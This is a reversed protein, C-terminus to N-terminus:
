AVQADSRRSFIERANGYGIGRRLMPHLWFNRYVFWCGLHRVIQYVMKAVTCTRCIKQLDKQMWLNKKM